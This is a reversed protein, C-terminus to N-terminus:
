EDYEDGEDNGGISQAAYGSVRSKYILIAVGLGILAIAMTNLNLYAAAVFGFILYPLNSRTPLYNLLITFGVAPLLKGAISFGNILAQPMIKILNNVFTPGFALAFFIPLARSLGWPICGLTNYLQIKNMRGKAVERDAMHQFITNTFRGLIDFQVAIAAIPVGIMTILTDAQGMDGGALATVLITATTYDPVSAGGFTGIGLAYSQMTAGVILGSKVNGTILGTFIGSQIAGNTGMGFSLGEIMSLGAYCSLLLIQWMQLEAM